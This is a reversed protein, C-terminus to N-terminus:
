LRLHCVAHKGAKSATPTILMDALALASSDCCGAPLAAAASLVHHCAIRIMCSPLALRCFRVVDHQQQSAVAAASPWGAASAVVRPSAAAMAADRMSQLQRGMARTVMGAASRRKIVASGTAATTADPCGGESTGPQHAGGRQAPITDAAAAAAGARATKGASEGGAAHGSPDFSHMNGGSVDRRQAARSQQRLRGFDLPPTRRESCVSGDSGSGSDISSSTNISAASPSRDSSDENPAAGNSISSDNRQDPAAAGAAAHQMVAPFHSRLPSTAAPPPAPKPYVQAVCCSRNSHQLNCM